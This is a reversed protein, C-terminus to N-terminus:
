ASAPKFPKITVSGKEVSLMSGQPVESWMEQYKGVPESVIIRASDSLRGKLAPNIRELEIVERSHYLTPANGDSAYRFAWLTKGDSLGVSASPLIGGAMALVERLRQTPDVLYLGPLKVEGLVSVRLLPSVELEPDALERAYSREVEAVVEAFPRGAVGISGILPLMVNGAPGVPYEGSWEPEMKVALRVADGTRLELRDFPGSTQASCPRITVLLVVFSAVIGTRVSM